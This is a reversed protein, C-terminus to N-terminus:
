GKSSMWLSSARPMWAFRMPHRAPWRTLHLRRTHGCMSCFVRRGHGCCSEGNNSLLVRTPTSFFPAAVCGPAAAVENGHEGAAGGQHVPPPQGCLAQSVGEIRGLERWSNGGQGRPDPHRRSAAARLLGRSGTGCVRRRRSVEEPHDADSRGNRCRERGAGLTGDGCQIAGGCGQTLSPCM